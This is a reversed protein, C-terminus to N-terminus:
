RKRRLKRQPFSNPTPIPLHEGPPVVWLEVMRRKRYGGDILKIRAPAIGYIKILRRRETDLRERATGLPDLRVDPTLEYDGNDVMHPRPNFQAYVIICAITKPAQKLQTAFTELYDGSEDDGSWLASRKGPDPPDFGYEDIKRASDPDPFYRAYADRRPTPTTGVPVIWLEQVQCDAEGGDVTVVRGPTVGRSNVLYKKSRLAIANSLGPLDRRTRYVLIFGKAAPQNQLQIAFNDLRAILDSYQVDGFEDFKQAVPKQTQTFITAGGPIFLLILLARHLCARLM